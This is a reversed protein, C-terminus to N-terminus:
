TRSQVPGPPVTELDTVMATFESDCCDTGATSVVGVVGVGVGVVGVEM